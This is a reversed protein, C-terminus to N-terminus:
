YRRTYKKKRKSKKASKKKRYSKRSYRCFRRKRGGKKQPADAASECIKFIKEDQKKEITIPPKTTLLVSMFAGIEDEKADDYAKSALNFIDSEIFKIDINGNNDNNNYKTVLAATSSNNDIFILTIAGNPTNKNPEHKLPTFFLQGIKKNDICYNEEPKKTMNEYKSFLEDFTIEM